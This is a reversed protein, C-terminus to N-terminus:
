PIKGSYKLNFESDLIDLVKERGDADFFIDFQDLITLEAPRHRSIFMLSTLDDHNACRYKLGNASLTNALVKTGTERTRNYDEGLLLSANLNLRSTHAGYLSAVVVDEELRMTVLSKGVKKGPMNKPVGVLAPRGIMGGTIKEGRLVGEAIAGAMSQALYIYHGLSADLPEFRGQGLDGLARPSKSNYSNADWTAYTPNIRYLVTGAPITELDAELGNYENTPM